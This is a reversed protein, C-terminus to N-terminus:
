SDKELTLLINLEGNEDIKAAVFQGPDVKFDSRAIPVTSSIIVKSGTRLVDLDATIDKTVGHITLAGPVSVHGTSGDSPVASIDVPQTVEFTATPYTDTELINMKVHNDRKPEESAVTNMDVTITGATLKNGDVTFSGDVHSTSGSTTKEHGPLIEHFTYGVSTANAGSGATIKWTGDMDTTAPQANDANLTGTKTGTDTFAKYIVPGVSALAIVVIAIAVLTVLPRKM